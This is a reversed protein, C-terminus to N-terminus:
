DNGTALDRREWSPPGRAHPTGLAV